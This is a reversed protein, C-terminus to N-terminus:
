RKMPISPSTKRFRRRSWRGRLCFRTPSNRSRRTVRPSTLSAAHLRHLSLRERRAACGHSDCFQRAVHARRGEPDCIRHQGRQRGRAGARAGAACGGGLRCCLLHRGIGARQYIGVFSVEEGLGKVRAVTEAARRIDNADKSNPNQNLFRAASALIDEPSDLMYVGCDALKRLNEPKFVADWSDIPKDGLRKRIQDVNYAIGTTFWMYNVAYANGPDYAALRQMVEPWLNKYNSLKSRDLKQFVGAQIQRALFTASPLVVDYGTKGTLLKTELVENSDYTDYVVKIGTEKTFEEIVRPDIYDSWNYINVVKEQAWVPAPALITFLLAAFLKKM